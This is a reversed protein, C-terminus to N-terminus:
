TGAQEIYKKTGSLDKTTDINNDTKIKYICSSLISMNTLVIKPFLHFIENVMKKLDGVLIIVLKSIM